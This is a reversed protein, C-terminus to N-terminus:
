QPLLITFRSGKGESSEVTIEGGHAEVLLKAYALGLGMGPIDSRSAHGRYFRSFIRGIDSSPIGNGDDTISLSICEKENRSACIGIEVRSGSYKIANEVLNTLINALHSKDAFIKEEPSIDLNFVIHKGAPRAAKDIISQAFDRLSITESNLPIQHSHNFTLDRMKSFSACLLELGQRSETILEERLQPNAAMKPNALGSVCMKLTSVPRKLEHVMTTVFENRMKDFRDLRFIIRFQWILCTILFISVLLAVILTFLMRGILHRVPIPCSIVVSKNELVSYPAIISVVPNILSSHRHLESTWILSDTRILEIDAHIGKKVLLSGFGKATFPSKYETGASVTAGWIASESPADSVDNTIVLSDINGFGNTAIDLARKYEESSLHSEPPLGLIRWPQFRKVITSASTRLHGQEDKWDSIQYSVLYRYSNDPKITKIENARKQNYLSLTEEVAPFLSNEYESVSYEYRGYLWYIQMAM